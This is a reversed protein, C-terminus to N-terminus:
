LYRRLERMSVARVSVHPEAAPLGANDCMARRVGAEAFRELRGEDALPRAVVDVDAVVAQRRAHVRTHVRLVDPDAALASHISAELAGARVLVGGDAVKLRLLADRHRVGAFLILLAVALGGALLAIRGAHDAPLHLATWPSYEHGTAVAVFRITLFVLVAAAAALVVAALAVTFREDASSSRMQRSDTVGM